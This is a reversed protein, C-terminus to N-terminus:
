LEFPNREDTLSFDLDDTFKNDRCQNEYSGLERLAENGSVDLSTIRNNGCYLATINEGTIIIEHGKEETYTHTYDSYDYSLTEMTVGTDDNWNICMMETGALQITVDGAGQVTLTM